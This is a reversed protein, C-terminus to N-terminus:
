NILSPHFNFCNYVFSLSVSNLTSYKPYFIALDKLTQFVFVEKNSHATEVEAIKTKLAEIETLDPQYSAGANPFYNIIDTSNMKALMGSGMTGAFCSGLEVINSYTPVENTTVTPLAYETFLARSARIYDCCHKPPMKIAEAVLASFTTLSAFAALM